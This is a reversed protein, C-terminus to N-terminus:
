REPKTDDLVRQAASVCLEAVHAEFAPHRHHHRHRMSVVGGAVGFVVGLTLLVTLVTHKM